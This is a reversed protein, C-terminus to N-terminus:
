EEDDDEEAVLAVDIVKRGQRTDILRVGQTNRGILSIGKVGTRILTGDSTVLMIEDEDQVACIAVVKGNRESVKINIIGSGGRKQIRYGSIKTRKGYGNETVTLIQSGKEIVEMGVLYDGKKLNIGRVGRAARGMERVDKENFLISKGDKTGLLINSEGDTRQVAILKDDEVLNIAIIGGKRPSNFANLSTKKVTGLETAMIVFQDEKFEKVPLIANIVEGVGLNLVSAITKGRTSRGSQPIEYVKVWHIKGINSFMLLFDHTSAVIISEGFDDEVVTMGKSGTGGRKQSRYVATATRKIYGKHSITVVMDEETILDEINIESEEADVIETKRPTAYKDNVEVLEGKIIDLKEQDSGLIEQFRAIKQALEKIEDFIKNRELATLRQLKMELIAKAQLSDLSLASMLEEQAKAPSESEKVIKIVQDINDLAIKFGNLLHIREEAKRLDFETRRRIINVRHQIFYALITKIDMVMPRSDVIALLIIGFTDQMQTHKYLQNMIIEPTEGKRLTIVIRMGKKDSEDRLDTIGDIKKDRVLEAIKEILRAKNVQYPLETVIISDKGGKEEEVKWRGRMKVTGRGTRYASDIGSRGCIIGATPFDPGKIYKFLEKVEIEPNDILKITGKIIEGMNHPPINTAMGVAIGSSGNILLNPVKGPLVTPEVMTNDYNPIFDITEKDIDALMEEAVKTMRIETYRMAAASDGDVSGFNGQGDVLPDRMSFDQAMRVIADYVATDGHPHYKGIVDGVVRASKKYPKNHMNNLDNMAFLIRRHVPKLGDRVDPLARGIIVSMAYDMYARRMEEEINVPKENIHKLM